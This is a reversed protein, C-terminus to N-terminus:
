QGGVVFEGVLTTGDSEYVPVHFSKGRHAEQWAIADEPSKFTKAANAGNADDLDSSRAYGTKGNTAVVAILDPIGNANQVGYSQGKENTGWDTLTHNVYTATLAWTAAADATITMSHQGTALPVSYSTVASRTGIDSAECSSSAGDNFEFQGPTLCTLEVAVNTAREPIPGLDVTATGTYIGVVPSALPTVADGGPLVLIGAAAAGIGGLLGAGAFVGAGLWLRRHNRKKRPKSADVQAILVNRLTSTFTDDPFTENM